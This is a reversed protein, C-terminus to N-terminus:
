LSCEFSALQGCKVNVRNCCQTGISDTGCECYHLVGLLRNSWVRVPLSIFVRYKDILGKTVVNRVHMLGLRAYLSHLTHTHQM